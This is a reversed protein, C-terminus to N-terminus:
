IVCIWRKCSSSTHRMRSYLSLSFLLGTKRFPRFSSSYLGFRNLPIYTYPSLTQWWTGPTKTMTVRSRCYNRGNPIKIELSIKPGQQYNSSCVSCKPPLLINTQMKKRSDCLLYQRTICVFTNTTSICRTPFSTHKKRCKLAPTGIKTEM